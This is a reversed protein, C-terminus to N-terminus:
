TAGSTVPAPTSASQTPTSAPNLSSQGTSAAPATASGAGSSTNSTATAGSQHGPLAKSVYVAVIGVSLVTVVAVM